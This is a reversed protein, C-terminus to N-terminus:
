DDIFILCNNLYSIITEHAIYKYFCVHCYICSTIQLMIVEFSLLDCFPQSNFTLCRKLVGLTTRYNPIMFPAFSLLSLKHLIFVSLSEHCYSPVCLLFGHAAFHVPCNYLKDQTPIMSKPLNMDNTIVTFYKKRNIHNLNYLQAEVRIM